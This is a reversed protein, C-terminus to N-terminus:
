QRPFLKPSRKKPSSEIAKTRKECLKEFAMRLPTALSESSLNYPLYPVCALTLDSLPERYSFSTLSNPMLPVLDDTFDSLLMRLAKLHTLPASLLRTAPMQLESDNCELTELHPPLRSWDCNAWIAGDLVSLSTLTRPLLSNISAPLSVHSAPSEIGQSAGITFLETMRSLHCADKPNFDADVFVSSCWLTKLRPPLHILQSAPISCAWYLLEVTQPITHFPFCSVVLPHKRRKNPPKTVIWDGDQQSVDLYELNPPFDINRNEFDIEGVVIRIRRLTRPLLSISSMPMAFEADQIFLYTLGSPLLDFYNEFSETFTTLDLHTLHPPWDSKPIKDIDGAMSLTRVTRPLRKISEPSFDISAAATSELRTLHPLHDFILPAEDEQELDMLETLSPPLASIAEQTLFPSVIQGCRISTLTRPLLKIDQPDEVLDVLDGELEILERSSILALFESLEIPSGFVELKRINSPLSEILAIFEDEDDQYIPKLSTLTDPLHSYMSSTWEIEEPNYSLQLTELIPFATKIDWVASKTGNRTTVNAKPFLLRTAGKFNLQLAVLTSPLSQIVSKSTFLHVLHHGNRNLHLKRLHRLEKLFLPLQCFAVEKMNELRVATTVSAIKHQLLKNGTLWLNFTAVTSDCFSLIAGLAQIDLSALRM